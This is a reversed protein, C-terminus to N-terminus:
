ATPTAGENAVQPGVLDRGRTEPLSLALMAAFVLGLGLAAVTTALGFRDVLLWGAGFGLISGAVAANAIWGGVTARIQTPFLEARHAAFAPTLMSAGFTALFISPALLWGTSVMYFAVGGILGLLVAIVTTPRRGLRDAMRGGVLLGLTGLGSFVILLFRAASTEWELDDILRELSFNFAPSSFAAVFFAIGMLPWLYKGIGASIANSFKVPKLNPLFARSEALFTRMLPVVVLGIASLGFLIRWSNASRDALPLIILSLGPGLSAILGYLGLGWARIEPTLEEALIVTALAAVALVAVRTLSQFFVFAVLGPILATALNALPLITLAILFPKRRGSRDGMISFAIAALSAARTIAFVASMDGETLELAKRAFPLTHTLVAGSYSAVIAAMSMLFLIRRDRVSLRAPPQLAQPLAM